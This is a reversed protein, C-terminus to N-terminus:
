KALVLKLFHWVLVWTCQNCEGLLRWWKRLIPSSCHGERRYEPHDKSWIVSVGSHMHGIQSWVGFIRYCKQRKVLAVNTVLGRWFRIWFERRPICISSRSHGLTDLWDAKGLRVIGIGVRLEDVCGWPEGFLEFIRHLGLTKHQRDLVKSHIAMHHWVINM